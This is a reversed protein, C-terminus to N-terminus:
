HLSIVVEEGSGDLDKAKEAERALTAVNLDNNTALKLIAADPGPPSAAPKTKATASKPKSGPRLTSLKATAQAGAARKKASGALTQQEDGTVDSPVANSAAAQPTGLPPQSFWGPHDDTPPAVPTPGQGIKALLQQRHQEESTNILQNFQQAVPSAREDLVDYSDPLQYDPVAQPLSAPAVLRDSTDNMAVLPPLSFSGGLGANKVAWGRTDITRALAELRSKVQTEDLNNTRIEEVKKPVTITVLEKVGSQNWIRRRPLFLFRIKALAWVETPQDKGFPFAFFGALLMIPGFVVLLPWLRKVLGIFCMYGCFAAVLAYIFQRLTLPGLIHDEAEIDQIVKYTAM